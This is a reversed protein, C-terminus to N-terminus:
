QKRSLEITNPDVYRVNVSLLRQLDDIFGQNNGAEFVGSIREQALSEDPVTLKVRSYRNMKEVADQLRETRLIVKGVRWATAVEIDAKPILTTDGNRRVTLAEGATLEIGKGQRPLVAVRGELMSVHIERGLYEVNFATGLAVITRDGVQVKFPRTPDHAVSFQAQGQILQIARVDSTYDVELRTASDIAMRSRDELEVMRIEGVSTQYHGPRLGYPLFQGIAALMVAGGIVSAALRWRSAPTKKWRQAGTRRMDALAAERLALIEPAQAHGGLADWSQEIDRYIAAFDPEAALRTELEAERRVSWEGHHKDFFAKSADDKPSANM